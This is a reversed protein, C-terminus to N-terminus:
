DTININEILIINALLEPETRNQQSLKTILQQTQKCLYHRKQCGITHLECM